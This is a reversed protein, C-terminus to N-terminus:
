GESAKNRLKLIKDVQKYLEDLSGNNDLVEDAITKLEKIQM